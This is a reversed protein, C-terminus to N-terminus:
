NGQVLACPGVIKQSLAIMGKKVEGLVNFRDHVIVWGLRWGPVLWRCLQDKTGYERGKVYEIHNVIHGTAIIEIRSM